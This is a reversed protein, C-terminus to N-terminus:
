GPARDSRRAFDAREEDIVFGAAGQGDGDRGLQPMALDGDNAPGFLKEVAFRAPSPTRVYPRLLRCELDIRAEDKLQRVKGIWM